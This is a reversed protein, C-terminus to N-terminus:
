RREKSPSEWLFSRPNRVMDCVQHVIYEVLTEGRRVTRMVGSDTHSKVPIRMM